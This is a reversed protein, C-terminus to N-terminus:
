GQDSKDRYSQRCAAHVHGHFMQPVSIHAGAKLCLKHCLQTRPQQLPLHTGQAQLRLRHCVQMSAHNLVIRTAVGGEQVPSCLPLDVGKVMAVPLYATGLLDKETGQEVVFPHLHQSSM